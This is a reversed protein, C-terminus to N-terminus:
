KSYHNDGTTRKSYFIFEDVGDRDIDIRCPQGYYIEPLNIKKITNLCSDIQEIKGNSYFLYLNNYELNNGTIIFSDEIGSFDTLIREKIQNGMPNLLVIKSDINEYGQHKQLVVIYKNEKTCFPKVEISTKYQGFKKPEFIFNLNKDLVMLWTHSDPYDISDKDQFNKFAYSEVFYENSGDNNIDFCIPEQMSTGNEPSKIVTKNFIDVLYLNRPQKSKGTNIIFVLENYGNNDNDPTNCVFAQCDYRGDYKQCKDVFLNIFYSEGITYPNVGKLFISDNNITLVFIETISDNNYDCYIFFDTNIYHGKFNKQDVIKGRDRIIFTPYSAPPGHYYMEESYGDSNLDHYSYVDPQNIKRTEVIYIQYKNFIPPLFLFIIITIILALSAPHFLLNLIKKM